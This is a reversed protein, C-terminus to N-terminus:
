SAPTMLHSLAQRINEREADLLQEAEAGIRDQQQQDHVREAVGNIGHRGAGLEFDLVGGDRDDVLVARFDRAADLFGDERGEELLWLVDCRVFDARGHIVVAEHEHDSGAPSRDSRREFRLGLRCILASAV